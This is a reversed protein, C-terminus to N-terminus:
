AANVKRVYCNGPGFPISKDKRLISDGREVNNDVCWRKFTTFDKFWMECVPGRHRLAYMKTKYHDVHNNFETQKEVDWKARHALREINTFFDWVCTDPSYRGDLVKKFSTFTTYGNQISWDAFAEFNGFDNASEPIRKWVRYIRAINWAFSGHSNLGEASTNDFFCEEISAYASMHGAYYKKVLEWQDCVPSKSKGASVKRSDLNARRRWKKRKSAYFNTRSYPQDDHIRWFGCDETIDGNAYGEKVVAVYEAPPFSEFTLKGEKFLRNYRGKLDVNIARSIDGLEMLIQSEIKQAKTKRPANDLYLYEM